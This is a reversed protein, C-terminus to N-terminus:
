RRSLKKQLRKIEKEVLTIKYPPTNKRISLKYKDVQLEEIRQKLTDHRKAKQKDLWDQIIGLSLKMGM